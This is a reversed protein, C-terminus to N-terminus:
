PGELAAELILRAPRYKTEILAPSGAFSRAPDSNSLNDALKVRLVSRDGTAAMGRIWDLYDLGAPKSLARVIAAVRPGFAETLSQEPCATDELVDHLLAAQIEEEGADPFMAQVRRAVDELHLLYPRGAKDVQGAHWQAAFARAQDCAPSM